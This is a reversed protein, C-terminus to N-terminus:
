KGNQRASKRLQSMRSESIDLYEAAAKSSGLKNALSDAFRAKGNATHGDYNAQAVARTIESERRIAQAATALGVSVIKELADLEPNTAMKM